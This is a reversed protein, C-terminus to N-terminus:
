KFDYVSKFDSLLAASIITAGIAFLESQHNNDNDLHNTQWNNMDEPALLTNEHKDNELVKWYSFREHPWSYINAVRIHGEDNVFVNQPNIDGLKPTKGNRRIDVLAATLSYLAFWLESEKFNKKDSLREKIM